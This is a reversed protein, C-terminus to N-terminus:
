IRRRGSTRVGARIPFREGVGSVLAEGGREGELIAGREREGSEAAACRRGEVPGVGGSGCEAGDLAWRALLFARPVCGLV